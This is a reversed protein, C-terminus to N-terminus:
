ASEYCSSRCNEMLARCLATVVTTRSTLQIAVQQMLGHQFSSYVDYIVL